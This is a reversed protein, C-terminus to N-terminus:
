AKKRGMRIDAIAREVMGRARQLGRREHAIMQRTADASKYSQRLLETDAEGIERSASELARAAATDEASLRPAARGDVRGGPFLRGCEVPDKPSSM